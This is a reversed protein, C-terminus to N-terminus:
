KCGDLCTHEVSEDYDSQSRDDVSYTASHCYAVRGFFESTQNAAISESPFSGRDWRAIRSAMKKEARAM